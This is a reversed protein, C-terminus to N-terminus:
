NKLNGYYLIKGNFKYGDYCVKVTRVRSGIKITNKRCNVKSVEYGTQKQSDSNDVKIVSSDNIIELTDPHIIKGEEYKLKLSEEGKNYWYIINAAALYKAKNKEDDTFNEKDDISKMYIENKEKDYFLINIKDEKPNFKYKIQEKYEEPIIDYFIGASNYENVIYEKLKDNGVTLIEGESTTNKKSNLTIKGDEGISISLSSDDTASSLKSNTSKDLSLYFKDGSYGDNFADTKKCNSCEVVYFDGPDIDNLDNEGTKPNTADKALYGEDILTKVDVAYVNNTAMYAKAVAIIEEAAQVKLKEKSKKISKSVGVSALAVVIGLIIIVALLEILTFGKSKKM